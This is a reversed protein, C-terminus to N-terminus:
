AGLKGKLSKLRIAGIPWLKAALYGSALQPIKFHANGPRDPAFPPGKKEHMLFGRIYFIPLKDVLKQEL